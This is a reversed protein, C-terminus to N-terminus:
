RPRPSTTTAIFATEAFCFEGAADAQDLQARWIQVQNVTLDARHGAAHRSVVETIEDVRMRAHGALRHTALVHADFAEVVLGARSALGPMKRGARPDTSPMWGQPVEAYARCIQETLPRDAGHIVLSAFDTHSWVARGGPRLVRRAEAFIVTPQSLLEVVNHCVLADVSATRLPLVRSLDARVLLVQADAHTQEAGALAAPHLDVGILRTGPWRHRLASLTRGPGCGLDLMPGDGLTALRGALVDHIPHAGPDV